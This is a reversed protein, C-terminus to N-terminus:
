LGISLGLRALIYGARRSGGAETDYAATFFQAGLDIATRRSVLVLVGGGGGGIVQWDQEVCEPDCELRGIGARGAVYVAAKSTAAAVYRPEIFGVSFAASFGGGALKFVTARQYGAGVSWRSLTYRVQGEWGLRTSNDFNPDKATPVVVAGSGQIGWRQLSQGELGAVATALLAAPLWLARM